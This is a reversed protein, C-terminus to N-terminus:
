MAMTWNFKRDCLAIFRMKSQGLRIFDGSKLRVPAIVPTDNVRVLNSKGGHQIWFASQEDDYTIFCHEKRSIQEDGFALVIRNTEDRGLSNMGPYVPLFRGRGPGSVITIWGAPLEVEEQAPATPVDPEPVPLRRPSSIRRTVVHDSELVVPVARQEEPAPAAAQRGSVLRVTPADNDDGFVFRPNRTAPRLPRTKADDPDDTSM